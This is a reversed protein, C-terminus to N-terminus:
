DFLGLMRHHPSHSSRKLTLKRSDMTSRKVPLRIRLVAGGFSKECAGDCRQAPRFHSNASPSMCDSWEPSFVMLKSRGSEGVVSLLRKEFVILTDLSESLTVPALYRMVEPDSNMEAFPEFDTEKWDRLVVAHM